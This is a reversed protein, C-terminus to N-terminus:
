NEFFLRGSYKDLESICYELFQSVKCTIYFKVIDRCHGQNLNFLYGLIYWHWKIYFIYYICSSLIFTCLRLRNIYTLFCRLESLFLNYNRQTIILILWDFNSVKMQYTPVQILRSGPKALLQHSIQITMLRYFIM